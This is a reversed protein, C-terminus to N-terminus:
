KNRTLLCLFPMALAAYPKVGSEKVAILLSETFPQRQDTALM